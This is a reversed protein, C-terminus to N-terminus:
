FPIPIDTATGTAQDSPGSDVASFPQIRACPKEGAFGTCMKLMKGWLPIYRYLRQFKPVFSISFNSWIIVNRIRIRILRFLGSRSGCWLVFHIRIRMLTSLSNPDADLDFFLIWIRIRIQMLTSVRSSHLILVLWPPGRVISALFHLQPPDSSWHDCMKMVEISVRIWM